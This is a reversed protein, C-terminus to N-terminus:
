FDEKEDYEIDLLQGFEKAIEDSVEDLVNNSILKTEADIVIEKKGSKLSYAILNEPQLVEEKPIVEYVSDRKTQDEEIIKGAQILNNFSSLIYPSHTTVIIQFQNRKSNFTRALFQIIRKQATPFLHAEPEEIYLTTGIKSFNMEKLIHLVLVLPLTEQQGSSANGLNVKRNDEHILYDKNKEQKYYSNLVQSILHADKKNNFDLNTYTRKFVEYFSGFEVLFPDLQRNDSLFSFISSQVQAFFSRGAPIFFQSYNLLEPVEKMLYADLKQRIKERFKFPNVKDRKEQESKVIERGKRLIKKINDSYDIKMSKGKSRSIEIYSEELIYKIKFNGESWSEKPFFGIFKNRQKKDFERKNDENDISELIDAFFDKFFFLLKVTVSKGSAQRGIIITIAKIDFEIKDLGGFNEIYIKENM